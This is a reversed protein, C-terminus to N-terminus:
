LVAFTPRNTDAERREQALSFVLYAVAFFVMDAKKYQRGNRRILLVVIDALFTNAESTCKRRASLM